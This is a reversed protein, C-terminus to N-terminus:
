EALETIRVRVSYDEQSIIQGVQPKPQVDFAFIAFNNQVRRAPTEGPTSVMIFEHSQLEGGSEFELVFMLSVNGVDVCEALEPCRSDNTVELLSLKATTQGGDIRLGDSTTVDGLVSEGSGTSGRECASLALVTSVLALLAFVYGRRM